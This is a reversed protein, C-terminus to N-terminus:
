ISKILAKALARAIGDRVAPADPGINLLTDVEPRVIFELEMLCSRAGGLYQDKLVGLVQDKV